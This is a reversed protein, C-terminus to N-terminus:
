TAFWLSNFTYRIVAGPMGPIQYLKFNKICLELPLLPPLAAPLHLQPLPSTPKLLAPGLLLFPAMVEARSLDRNQPMLTLKKLKRKMKALTPARLMLLMRPMTRRIRQSVSTRFLLMLTPM